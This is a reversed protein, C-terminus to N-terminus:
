SGIFLLYIVINLSAVNAEAPKEHLDEISTSNCNSFILDQSSFFVLFSPGRLQAPALVLSLGAVYPVPGPDLGPWMTPLHASECSFWGQEENYASLTNCHKIHVPHPRRLDPRAFCRLTEAYRLSGPWREKESWM